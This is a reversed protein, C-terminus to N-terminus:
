LYRNAYEKVQQEFKKKLESMSNIITEPHSGEYKIPHCDGRRSPIFEHVGQWENDIMYKIYSDGLVWKLWIDTFYNDIIGGQAVSDHYYQIKECVQKASVYSYHHMTVGTEEFLQAGTIDKGHILEGHLSLQPPRHDHYECGQLYKLVRKFSHNREFGNLIYDFGGFFTNSTFGLSTPNEKKLYDITKQINEATFVEDSDICWVYDTDTPVHAFWARCQETKESYLGQILKIKSEPDPFHRIIDITNDTSGQVGKDQWYQVAGEAIIIRHAFPYISELVNKIFFDGNLVILGFTIKM